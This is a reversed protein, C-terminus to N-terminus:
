VLYAEMHTKITCDSRPYASCLVVFGKAIQEDELFSQDEQTLKAKLWSALAALAPVRVVRFRSNLITKKLRMLSTCMM